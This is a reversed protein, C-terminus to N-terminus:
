LAVDSESPEEDEDSAQAKFRGIRRFENDDEWVEASVVQGELGALSGSPTGYAAEMLKRLQNKQRKVFGVNPHVVIFYASVTFNETDDIPEVSQFEVAYMQGNGKSTRKPGDVEVIEFNARTRELGTADSLDIEVTPDLLDQTAGPQLEDSM